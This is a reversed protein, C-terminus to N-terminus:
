VFKVVYGETRKDLFEKYKHNDESIWSILMKNPSFFKIDFGDKTLKYMLYCICANIDYIPQGFIISPVTYVCFHKEFSVYYDIHSHCQKLIIKYIELKKKEREKFIRRIKDVKKDGTDM